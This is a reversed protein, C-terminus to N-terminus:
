DCNKSKKRKNVPIGIYINDTQKQKDIKEDNYQIVKVPFGM